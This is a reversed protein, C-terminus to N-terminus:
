QFGLTLPISGKFDRMKKVTTYVFQLFAAQLAQESFAFPLRRLCM